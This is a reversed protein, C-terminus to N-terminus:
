ILSARHVFTAPLLIRRGHLQEPERRLLDTMEMVLRDMGLEFTALPPSFEAALPINDCGLVSLEAPIEVGAERLRQMLGLAMWDNAAFLGEPFSATGRSALLTEAARVGGGWNMKAEMVSVELGQIAAAELFGHRREAASDYREPGALLTLRRFGRAYLLAFANRGINRDDFRVEAEQALRGGGHISVIRSHTKVLQRALADGIPGVVVIPEDSRLPSPLLQDEPVDAGAELLVIRMGEGAAYTSLATLFKLYFPDEPKIDPSRLLQLESITSRLKPLVYTGKGQRQQLLGEAVLRAMARRLTVRSVGFREALVRESSVRVPQDSRMGLFRERLAEETKEHALPKHQMLVEAEMDIEWDIFRAGDYYWDCVMAIGNRKQYRKTNSTHTEQTHGKGIM